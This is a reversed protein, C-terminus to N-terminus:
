KESYDKLYSFKDTLKGQKLITAKKIIENNNIDKSLISNLVHETLAEGFYKSTDLALANPLTDVAMVTIHTPSSFATEEKMTVPNYDYFPANHTSARVTSKISGLIDCTVDGIVSINMDAKKLEEETLYVPDENRWFHCPIFVDTVQAYKYFDSIYLEPYTKFHAHDFDAERNDIRKVLTDLYAVTYVKQNSFDNTLFDFNSVNNFGIKDLLYQAGQSSRGKGTIVIKCNYNQNKKTVELLKDLTFRKDPKPLNFLNNKLGYARLTNYAGVVGAWWGFACLRHNNDDVLYEYDSFTIKLEMMKKILPRNYPQMKAIHGFFFYHKEPLLTSIDAEKIGFLIDCDSVDDRVDIGKDAYEQDHYVRIGSSQVVFEANSFKSKLAVIQEPSLAVRNDEPVKTEKIIGIKM